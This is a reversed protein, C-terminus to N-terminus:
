SVKQRRSKPQSDYRRHFWFPIVPHRCNHAYHRTGEKSAKLGAILEDFTLRGFRFYLSPLSVAFAASSFLFISFLGKLFLISTHTYWISDQFVFLYYQLHYLRLIFGFAIISLLILYPLMSKLPFIPKCEETNM